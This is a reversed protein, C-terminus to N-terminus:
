RILSWMRRAVMRVMPLHVNKTKGCPPSHVAPAAAIIPGQLKACARRASECMMAWVSSIANAVDM